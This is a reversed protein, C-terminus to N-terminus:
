GLGLRMDLYVNLVNIELACTQHKFKLINLYYTDVNKHFKIVYIVKHLVSESWEYKYCNTVSIEM